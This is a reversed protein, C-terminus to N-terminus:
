PCIMTNRRVPRLHRDKELECCRLIGCYIQAATNHLKNIGSAWLGKAEARRRVPYDVNRVITRARTM